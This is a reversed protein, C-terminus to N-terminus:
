DSSRVTKAVIPNAHGDRLARRIADLHEVAVPKFAGLICFSTGTETGLRPLGRFQDRACVRASRMEIALVMDRRLGPCRRPLVNIWAREGRGRFVLFRDSEIDVRRYRATALCRQEDAYAADDLPNALVEEASPVADPASEGAGVPAPVAVAAVLLMPLAKTM